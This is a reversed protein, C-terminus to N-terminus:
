KPLFIFFAYEETKVLECDINSIGTSLESFIDSVKLIRFNKIWQYQPRTKKIEYGFCNEELETFGYM